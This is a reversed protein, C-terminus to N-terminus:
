LTFLADDPDHDLPATRLWTCWGLPLPTEDGGLQFAPAEERALVLQIEFAFQDNGFFRTLARLAQYSEGGPLFEDYRRRTLPGIRVRVRGQQDWVEDGAVAGGGLTGMEDGLATQSARTLPYWAGVFQEVACPVDFYDAILQELASAPRSPLSLLGAYYLLSEDPLPLRDQLGPTGMGVISLLQSMLWERRPEAGSATEAPLRGAGAAPHSKAWARYFLSIFRHEFLGLFSKLTHDGARERAVGYLSYDLPLVGQPGTLGFFNVAMQAPDDGTPPELSRIESSPFGVGNPTSFRVVEDGPDAFEGVPAREPYLQELLRVAQFFEYAQPEDLLPGLLKPDLATM